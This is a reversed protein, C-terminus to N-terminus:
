SRRRSAFAVFFFFRLPGASAASTAPAVKSVRLLLNWQSSEAYASESMEDSADMMAPLLVAVRYQSGSEACHHDSIECILQMGGLLKRERTLAVSSDDISM